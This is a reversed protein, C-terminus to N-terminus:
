KSRASLIKLAADPSEASVIAQIAGQDRSLRAISSLLALHESRQAAPSIFGIIARPANPGGIVGGPNLGIAAVIETLDRDRAHPIALAGCLTPTERERTIIAQVLRDVDADSFHRKPLTRVFLLAAADAIDSGRIGFVIDDSRLLSTLNPPRAIVAM